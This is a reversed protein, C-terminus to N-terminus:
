IDGRDRGIRRMVDVGRGASGQRCWHVDCLLRLFAEGEQAKPDDVWEYWGELWDSEDYPTFDDSHDRNIEELIEDMSWYFIRGTEIELITYLKENKM